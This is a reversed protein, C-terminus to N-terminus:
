LAKKTAMMRSSIGRLSARSWSNSVAAAERVVIPLRSAGHSADKRMKAWAKVYLKLRGQNPKALGARVSLLVM